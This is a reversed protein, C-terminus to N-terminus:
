NSEDSSASDSASFVSNYESLTYMTESESVSDTNQRTCGSLAILVVPFLLLAPRIKM